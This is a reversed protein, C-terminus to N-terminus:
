RSWGDHLITGKKGKMEKAMKEEVVFMLHIMTDIFTNCSVEDCNLHRTFSKNKLKNPAINEECVLEMWTWLAHDQPKAKNLSEFISQQVKASPLGGNAIRNAEDIAEESIARVM